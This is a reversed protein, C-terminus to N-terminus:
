SATSTILAATVRFGSRAYLSLNSISPSFSSISLSAGRWYANWRRKSRYMEVMLTQTLRTTSFGFVVLFRSGSCSLQRFRSRPPAAARVTSPCTVKRKHPSTNYQHAALARADHGRRLGRGRLRAPSPRRRHMPLVPSPLWHCHLRWDLRQTLPQALEIQALDRSPPHHRRGAAQLQHKLCILKRQVRYAEGIPLAV